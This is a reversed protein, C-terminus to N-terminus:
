RIAKELEAASEKSLKGLEVLQNLHARQMAPSRRPMTKPRADVVAQINPPVKEGISEMTKTDALAAIVGPLGPVSLRVTNAVEGTLLKQLETEPIALRLQEGQDGALDLAHTALLRGKAVADSLARVRDSKDYGLSAQWKVPRQESRAKGLEIAYAEKFAMRAGIADGDLLLTRAGEFATAMEETWVVSIDDSKPCSAWATEPEPRGDDAGMGPIRQKIDPLRVPYTCEDICRHLAHKIQEFTAGRGLLYAAMKALSGPEQPKNGVMDYFGNLAAIVEAVNGSSASNKPSANKAQKSEM